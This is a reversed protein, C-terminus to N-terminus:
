CLKYYEKFENYRFKTSIGTTDIGAFLADMAMVVPIQSGKGCKEVLKTLVSKNSDENEVRKTETDMRDIAEDVYKKSIRLM